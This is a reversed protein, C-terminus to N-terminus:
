EITRALLVRGLREVSDRDRPRCRVVVEIRDPRHVASVVETREYLWHLKGGADADQPLIFHVEIPYAFARAITDRLADLGRGTRTSIVIPTRHFELEALVQVKTEIEDDNLLDAKTLVPRVSDSSVKPFLTRAALRVKRQIETESDSVDVLLLVLDAQLIEELTANFAEVMWFPVGDVFGITDTLLIRKRTGTLSRTTTALTSFM